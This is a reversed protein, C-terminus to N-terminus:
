VVESVMSKTMKSGLYWRGEVLESELQEEFGGDIMEAAHIRLLQVDKLRVWRVEKM